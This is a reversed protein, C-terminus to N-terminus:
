ETSHEYIYQVDSIRQALEPDMEEFHFFAKEFVDSQQGIWQVFADLEEPKLYNFIKAGQLLESYYHEVLDLFTLFGHGDFNLKWVALMPELRGIRQYIQFFESHDFFGRSFLLQEWWPIFLNQVAQQETQPWTGWKGYDLKGLIVFSDVVFYTTTTLEFIRPLFHKFDNVEGFTTMAKFAYYKLDDEELERLPKSHILEKASDSVCCPCGNIKLPGRYKAFVQYLEEM